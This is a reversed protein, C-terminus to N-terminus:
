RLDAVRIRSRNLDIFVAAPASGGALRVGGTESRAASLDACRDGGGGAAIRRVRARILGGDLEEWALLAGGGAMPAVQVGGAPGGAGPQDSPAIWSGHADRIATGLRNEGGRFLAWAAVARGDPLVAVDAGTDARGPRALERPRDNGRGVGRPPSWAAGDAHEAVFVGIGQDDRGIWVAVAAGLPGIAVDPEQTRRVGASVVTPGSWTGKPSRTAAAVARNGDVRQEWVLAAAENPAVALRPRRARAGDTSIPRPMGWAGDVRREAVEIVADPGTTDRRWAVIARGTGDMAVQADHAAAGPTSLMTPPSWIGDPGASSMEITRSGGVPQWEWAAIADGAPDMAVSPDRAGDRSLATAATWARDAMRMSAEIPGGTGSEWVAVARAGGDTAVAPDRRDAGSLTM